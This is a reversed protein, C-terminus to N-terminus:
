DLQKGFEEFPMPKAYYYGQVMDCGLSKLLEVHESLEVGEAVTHIGLDKAMDIMHSLVALVRNNNKASMFFSRDLKIVDVPLSKLLGLSSYGSGFDDMSLTFGEDHLKELVKLLTGENDYLISETLEIELFHRPIAYRDAISCLSSVFKDNNLHLRSFNVSVVVPQKGQALWDHIIQCVKEFMYFDLRTIFGNQEFVPIFTGPYTLKGNEGLWRVLAEAGAIGEDKLRYKPQLYVLFKGGALAEEMSNEIKKEQLMANKIRNDYDCIKTDATSKALRHAYNVKEYIATIDTEGPEILYRGYHFRIDYQVTLRNNLDEEFAAMEAQARDYDIFQVLLIFEDSAIRAFTEVPSRCATDLCDSITKLLQDGAAFGFLENFVKFRDMDLKIMQYRQSSNMEIIKAAEMKFKNYNERGTLPDIYALTYLRKRNRYGQILVYSLLLTIMVLIFTVIPLAYRKALAALNIQVEPTVTNAMVIANSEETSIRRLTKNFIEIFLPNTNKSVLLRVPIATNASAFFELQPIKGMAIEMNLTYSNILGAAARGEAVARFLMENTPYSVFEFSPYRSEFYPLYPSYKELYAIRSGPSLYGGKKTAFALSLHFVPDSYNIATTDSYLYGTIADIEGKEFMGRAQEYSEVPIFEMKLGSKQVVLRVLDPFIGVYREMQKDYYEAAYMTPDFAVRIEQGNEIFTIEDATYAPAGIIEKGFYKEYLEATFYINQRRIEKIGENIQNFLHNRDKDTVIYYPMVSLKGIMKVHEYQASSELIYADIKQDRVAQIMEDVSQFFVYEASFGNEAKYAEFAENEEFAGVKMGEFHVFDDFFLEENEETTYLGLYEFGIEYDPYALFQELEENKIMPCILDLEGKKLKRINSEWDGEIYEYRFGTYRSLEELYDVGYGTHIGGDFSIGYGNVYGVRLVVEGAPAAFVATKFLIWFSVLFILMIVIHKGRNENKNKVMM